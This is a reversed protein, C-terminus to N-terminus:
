PAGTRVAGNRGAVSIGHLSPRRWGLSRDRVLSLAIGLVICQVFHASYPIFILLQAALLGVFAAAPVDPHRFGDDRRLWRLGYWYIALLAVLGTLGTRLLIQVYYNHPAYTILDGKASYRDFGSGYPSGVANVLPGAHAWQGLLEKWGWVRDGTTGASLNTAGEASVTIASTVGQGGGGVLIPALVAAAALTVVALNTFLRGKGKKLLLFSLLVPVFAAIWVSRHQLVLITVVLLPVLFRWQRLGSGAAMAYVILILAQGLFLAQASSVVRLGSGQLDMAYHWLPEIWDLDLADATWRYYVVALTVLSCLLWARVFGSLHERTIPFSVFYATGAWFYFEDRFEVGASTGFKAMGLALSILMLTGLLALSKPIRALQGGALVRLMGAFALISFALDQPYLAIGLKLGPLRTTWMEALFLFLVLWVGILPNVYLGWVLVCLVLALLIAAVFPIAIFIAELL